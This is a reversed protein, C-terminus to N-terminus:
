GGYGQEKGTDRQICIGVVYHIHTKYKIQENSIHGILSIASCAEISDLYKHLTTPVDPLPLKPMGDKIDKEHGVGLSKNDQNEDQPM